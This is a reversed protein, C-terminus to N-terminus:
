LASSVLVPSTYMSMAFSCYTPARRQKVILWLEVLEEHRVPTV